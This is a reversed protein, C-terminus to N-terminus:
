YFARFYAMPKTRYFKSLDILVSDHQPRLYNAKVNYKFVRVKGGLIQIHLRGRNAPPM